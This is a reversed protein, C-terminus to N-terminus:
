DAGSGDEGARREAQRRELLKYLENAKGARWVARFLGTGSFLLALAIFVAVAIQSVYADGRAVKGRETSLLECMVKVEHAPKESLGLRQNRPM